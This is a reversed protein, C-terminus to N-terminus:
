ARKKPMLEYFSYELFISLFESPTVCQMRCVSDEPPKTFVTDSNGTIRGAGNWLELRSCGTEWVRDRGSSNCRHSMTRNGSCLRVAQVIVANTWALRPRFGFKIKAVSKEVRCLCYLVANFGALFGGSYRTKCNARMFLKYTSKM